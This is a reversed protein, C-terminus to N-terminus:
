AIFDALPRLAVGPLSDVAPVVDLDDFSGKATFRYVEGDFDRELLDFSELLNLNATAEGLALFFDMGTIKRRFLAPFTQVATCPTKCHEHLKSLKSIHGEILTNLRNDLGKFVKGHSPLVIPDGPIQKMRNLSSIWYALPNAKPERAFVSVNSTIDPLIQDGSILLPEDLCLLCAHEPSHGRGIVVQWRRKGFEFIAGDEMRNLVSPLKHVGKKFRNYGASRLQDEFQRSVGMKFLYEIENEPMTAKAGLWLSNAMLYEILTCYFAADHRKVLWGALGLHDPHMHTAVVNLIPKGGLVHKELRRWTARGRKGQAGTDIVTWGDGEDLLYVNIHDLSWPLPIRAWLIGSSIEIIDIDEPVKEFQYILNEDGRSWSVAHDKVEVTGPVMSNSEPKGKDAM